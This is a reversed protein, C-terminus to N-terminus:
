NEDKVTYVVLTDFGTQERCKREEVDTIGYIVAKAIPM